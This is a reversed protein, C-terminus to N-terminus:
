IIEFQLCYFIILSGVRQKGSISLKHLVIAANFCELVTAERHFFPSVMTIKTLLQALFDDNKFFVIPAIVKYYSPFM